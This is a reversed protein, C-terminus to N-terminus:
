ACKPRGEKSINTSALYAITPLLANDIYAETADEEKLMRIARQRHSPPNHTHVSLVDHSWLVLIVALGALVWM